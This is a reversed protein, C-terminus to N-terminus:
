YAFIQITTRYPADPHLLTVGHYLDPTNIVGCNFKPIVMKYKESEDKYYFLGGFDIDWTENLYITSALKYLHDKHQPIYSFPYWMYFQSTFTFEKYEPKIKIFKNKIINNIEKSLYLSVVASSKKVIDKSWFKNTRWKPEAEASNVEKFLIPLEEDTFFKEIFSIM